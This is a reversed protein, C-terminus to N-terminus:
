DDKIKLSFPNPFMFFGHHKYVFYIGLSNWYILCIASALAAGEIGIWGSSADFLPILYYNLGINLIAASVIIKSVLKEYGTMNLFNLVSGSLANYLQGIALIYVCKKAITFSAGYLSLLWEASFILLIFVPISSWFNLKVSQMALKRLKPKDNATFLESFKPAAISNIAFLSLSIILGFKFAVFYVGVQDESLFRGLLINDTWSLVLFMSSTLMMPLSIKILRKYNDRGSESDVFEKHILLASWLYMILSAGLLAYFPLYNTPEFFFIGVLLFFSMFLLLSGVQLYSFAKMKKMGRLTDANVKILAYPVIACSVIKISRVLLDNEFWNAVLQASQYVLVSLVASVVIILRISKRYADKAQGTKNNFRLDSVVKVLAEDLGLRSVVVVLSLITFSLSYVGLLEEGFYQTIIYSLVYGSFLGLVRFFFVVASGSLLEKLQMDKTLKSKLKELM